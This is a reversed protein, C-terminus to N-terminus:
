CFTLLRSYRREGGRCFVMWEKGHHFFYPRGVKAHGGQAAIGLASLGGDDLADAHPGAALLERLVGTDGREVALDVASKDDVQLCSPLPPWKKAGFAATLVRTRSPSLSPTNVM